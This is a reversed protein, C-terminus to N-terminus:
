QIPWTSSSRIVATRLTTGGVDGCFGVPDQDEHPVAVPTAHFPRISGITTAPGTPADRKMRLAQNLLALVKGTRLRDDPRRSRSGTIAKKNDIVSHILQKL